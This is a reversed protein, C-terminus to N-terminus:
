DDVAGPSGRTWTEGDWFETLISTSGDGRTTYGVAVAFSDSYASVSKLVTLRGLDPTAVVAWETGDWHEAVSTTATGADSVGVAWADDSSVASVSLLRATGPSPAAVVKWQTGDWHIISPQMVGTDDGYYGVSWVDDSSVADVSAYTRPFRGPNHAKIKASYSGNWHTTM